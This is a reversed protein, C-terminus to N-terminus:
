FAFHADHAPMPHAPDGHRERGDDVSGLGRRRKLISSALGRTFDLPPMSDICLSFKRIGDEIPM